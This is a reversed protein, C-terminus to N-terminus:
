PKRFHGREDDIVLEMHSDDANRAWTAVMAYRGGFAAGHRVHHFFDSVHALVRSAAKNKNGAPVSLLM